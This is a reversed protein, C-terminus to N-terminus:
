GDLSEGRFEKNRMHMKISTNAADVLLVAIFRVGLQFEANQEEESPLQARM